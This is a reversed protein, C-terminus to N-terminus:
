LKALLDNMTTIEQQQSFVINKALAVADSNGGKAVEDQADPDRRPPGEYM